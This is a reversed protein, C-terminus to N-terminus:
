IIVPPPPLLKIVCDVGEHIAVVDLVLLRAMDFTIRTNYLEM